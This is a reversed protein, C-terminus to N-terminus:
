EDRHFQILLQNTRGADGRVFNCTLSSFRDDDPAFTNWNKEEDVTRDRTMIGMAMFAKEPEYAGDLDCILVEPLADASPGEGGDEGPPFFFTIKRCIGFDRVIPPNAESFEPFQRHYDEYTQKYWLAVDVHQTDDPEMPRENEPLYEDGTDSAESSQELVAKEVSADAETEVDDGGCAQLLLVILSISLLMSRKM